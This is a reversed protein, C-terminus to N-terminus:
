LRYRSLTTKKLMAAQRGSQIDLRASVMNSFTRWTHPIYYGFIISILYATKWKNCFVNKGLHGGWDAMKSGAVDLILLTRGKWTTCTHGLNWISIAFLKHTIASVAIFTSARVSPRASLRVVQTVVIDGKRWAAPSLFWLQHWLWGISAQKYM